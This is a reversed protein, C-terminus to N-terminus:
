SRPPLPGHFMLIRKLRGDSAREAVDIGEMLKKGEGDVIRWSYRVLNNHADLGSGLVLETGPAARQYRGIRDSLGATGQWRGTRDVLEVDTSVARDLRRRRQETDKENWCMFYTDIVEDM